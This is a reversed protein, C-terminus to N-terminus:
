EEVARDRELVARRREYDQHSIQRAAFRRQLIELPTDRRRSSRRPEPTFLSAFGVILLMWFLWWLLHMGLFWGGGIMHM